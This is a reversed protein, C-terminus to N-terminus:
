ASIYELASLAAITGDSVATTIQRFRKQRTDGAAFVGPVNTAMCQDTIIEGNANTEVSDKFRGTSPVYGIFVFAGTASIETVTGDKKSRVRVTELGEEGTFFDGDCTACYSIGKGRLRAESELGLPRPEGGVAIIVAKAVYTEVQM